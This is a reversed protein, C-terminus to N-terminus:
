VVSKRDRGERNKSDGNLYITSVLSYDDLRRIQMLPGSTWVIWEGDPSIACDSIPDDAPWYKAISSGNRDWLNVVGDEGGTLLQGGDPSHSICTVRGTHGGSFRSLENGTTLEYEIVGNDDDLDSSCM